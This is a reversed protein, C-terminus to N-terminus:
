EEVAEWFKAYVKVVKVEYGEDIIEGKAKKEKKMSSYKHLTYNEDYAEDRVSEIFAKAEQETEARYTETVELKIM